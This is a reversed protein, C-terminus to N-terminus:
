IKAVSNNADIYIQRVNSPHQGIFKYDTDIPQEQTPYPNQSIPQNKGILNYYGGNVNNEGGRVVNILEQIFGGKQKKGKRKKIRRGGKFIQDDSTSRAPELGGVVIGNKSLSFHNSMTAGNTDLGESAQAGPWTGVNGGDWSYGVPGAAPSSIMGGNMNGGHRMPQRLKKIIMSHKKKHKKHRKLSIHKINKNIKKNSRKTSRKTSKKTSRKYSKKYSKKNSRKNSRRKISKAM